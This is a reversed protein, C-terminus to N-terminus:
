QMLVFPWYPPLHPPLKQEWHSDLVGLLCQQVTSSSSTESRINHFHSPIQWCHMIVILTVSVYLWSVFTGIKLLQWYINHYSIHQHLHMMSTNKKESQLKHTIKSRMIPTVKSTLVTYGVNVKFFRNKTSLSLHLDWRNRLIWQKDNGRTFM